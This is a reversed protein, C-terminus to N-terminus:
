GRVLARAAAVLTDLRADARARASAMTEGDRVPERVDFYVKLKPETGSPRIMVRGEPSLELVLLDSAPLGLPSEGHADRRTGRLVDAVAIVEDNAIRKPTSARLRALTDRMRDAGDPGDHRVSFARSAFLGVERALADLVDLLTEGRRKADDAADALVLLASLGDKDRVLSGCAYGLAEEYGFTLAYGEAELALARAHIWKHGTLTQEYRAGRARAIAGVLPSSVITAIVLPKSDIETRTRLLHSALVAGIENGDLVRMGSPTRVAVALRDADPDNALAVDAGSAEALALVARMAEPEEPNPFPATPFTGDPEAQSEVVAVDHFGARALLRRALAGGVGHLPTYAISLTRPRSPVLALVAAAYDDVVARPVSEIPARDLPTTLARVDRMADIRAAIAADHPPVIQAGNEWYVKLGNDDRPNHSATVVVGAAAGLARIAYAVVPTPAHDPFLMVRFGLRAAVNAADEAFARSSLRADHGIVLGRAGANPVTDALHACLGATARAVVRRNMARPGPGVPGRLGATGFVLDGDFAVRLAAHDDSALLADIAARCAADPDDDRWAIARARLDEESRM